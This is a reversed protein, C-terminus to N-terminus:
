NQVISGIRVCNSYRREQQPATAYEMGGHWGSDTGMSNPRCKSFCLKHLLSSFPSDHHSTQVDCPLHLFNWLTTTMAVQLHHCTSQSEWLLTLAHCTDQPVNSHHPWIVHNPFHNNNTGMKQRGAQVKVGGGGCVFLQVKTRWFTMALTLPLPIGKSQVSQGVNYDSYLFTLPSATNLTICPVMDFRM